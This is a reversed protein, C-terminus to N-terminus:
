TSSITVEPFARESTRTPKQISTSQSQFSGSGSSSSQKFSIRRLQLSPPRLPVGGASCDSVPNGRIGLVSLDDAEELARLLEFRPVRREAQQVLRVEVFAGHPRGGERQLLQRRRGLRSVAGHRLLARALFAAHEPGAVVGDPDRDPAPGTSRYTTRHCKHCGWLHEWMTTDASRLDQYLL